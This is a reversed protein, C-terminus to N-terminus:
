RPPSAAAIAIPRLPAGTLPDAPQRQSLQHPQLAGGLEPSAVPPTSPAPPAGSAAISPPQPFTAIALDLPTAPARRCSHSFSHVVEGGSRYRPPLTCPRRSCTRRTSCLHRSTPLPRGVAVGQPPPPRAATARPIGADPRWSPANCVPHCSCTCRTSRLHRSTPLPRCSPPPPRSRSATRVRTPRPQYQLV